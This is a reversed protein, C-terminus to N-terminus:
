SMKQTHQNVLALRCCDALRKLVIWLLYNVYWITFGIINAYCECHELLQKKVTHVGMPEFVVQTVM